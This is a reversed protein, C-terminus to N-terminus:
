FRGQVRRLGSMELRRPHRGLRHGARNRGLSRGQGPRLRLWLERVDVHALESATSAALYRYFEDNVGKLVDTCPSEIKWAGSMSAFRLALKAFAFLVAARALRLLQYVCRPWDADPGPDAAVNYIQHCVQRRVERPLWSLQRLAERGRAPEPIGTFAGDATWLDAWADSEGEDFHWCYRALLDQIATRDDSTLGM